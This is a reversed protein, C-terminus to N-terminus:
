RKKKAEQQSLLIDRMAARANRSGGLKPGRLIEEQKAGPRPPPAPARRRAQRRAAMADMFERRFQEAIREDAPMDEGAEASSEAQDQVDYVDVVRTDNASRVFSQAPLVFLSVDTKECLPRSWRTVSSIMALADRADEGRNVM